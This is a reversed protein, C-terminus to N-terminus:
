SIPLYFSIVKMTRFLYTFIEHIDIYDLAHFIKVNREAEAKSQEILYFYYVLNLTFM